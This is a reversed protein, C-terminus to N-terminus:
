CGRHQLDDEVELLQGTVRVPNNKQAALLSVPQGTDQSVVKVKKLAFIPWTDTNILSPDKPIVLPKLYAGESAARSAM